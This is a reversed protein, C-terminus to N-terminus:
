EVSWAEVMPVTLYENDNSTYSYLNETTGWVTVTQGDTIPLEGESLRYNVRVIRGTDGVGQEYMLFDGYYQEDEDYEYNDFVTGTIQARISIQSDCAQYLEVMSASVCQSILTGVRAARAIINTAYYLCWFHLVFIWLTALPFEM